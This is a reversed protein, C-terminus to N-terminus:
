EFPLTNALELFFRQAIALQRKTINEAGSERARRFISALGEFYTQVDKMTRLETGTGMQKNLV